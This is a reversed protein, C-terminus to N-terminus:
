ADGVWDASQRQALPIWVWFAAGGTYGMDVGVTGGQAEIMQKVIYLGLGSSDEGATPRTSLQSFPQFLRGVEKSPIGDGQDLVDVRYGDEHLRGMVQIQTNPHTYKIANSVLNTLVQALRREDAYVRYADVRVDITVGKKMAVQRFSRVVKDIQAQIDVADLVIEIEGDNLVGSDLFDTVIGLMKRTTRDAMDVFEGPMPEDPGFMEFLMLLNNLPNKLDHSAIRLLRTKLADAKQARVLAREREVALQHIQLQTAVQKRVVKHSFPKVIYDNAGMDLGEVVHQEESLASVLIVPLTQLDYVERIHRLVAYGNMGPMTIDLLVLDVANVALIELADLGDYAPLVRVELKSLIRELLIVNNEIDDVVLVTSQPFTQLVM